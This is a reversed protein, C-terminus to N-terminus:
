EDIKIDLDEFNSDQLFKYDNKLKSITNYPGMLLEYSKNNKKNVYVLKYNSDELILLLRNKLLEASEPNYFDAVLISYTKIPPLIIKKDQSLNNINIKEVPAKNSIKKEINETIAKKAIFSKNTKIENIEIYPFNFNLDLKKAVSESISVKYFNDYNDKKKIVGEIFKDNEPNIIRIKTGRKLKNHAFYFENEVISIPLINEIFAFGKATHTFSNKNVYGNNTCSILFLLLTIKYKM